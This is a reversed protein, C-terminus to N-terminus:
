PMYNNDPGVQFLLPDRVTDVVSDDGSKSWYNILSDFALGSEWWYYPQGFLGPINGNSNNSRYLDLINGVITKSASVLSDTNNVDLEIARTSGAALMLGLLGIHISVRM